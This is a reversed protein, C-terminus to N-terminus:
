SGNMAAEVENMEPFLRRIQEDSMGSAKLSNYEKVLKLRYDLEDQKGKWQMADITKKELEYKKKELDEMNKNHRVTEEHKLKTSDSAEKLMTVTEDDMLPDTRRKKKKNGKESAISSVAISNVESRGKSVGTENVRSLNQILENTGNDPPTANNNPPTPQQEVDDDEDLEGDTSSDLDRPNYNTAKPETSSRDAMIDCLEYYYPCKRKVIDQFTDNGQESQIGAGTESTAFTHAERFSEELQWIKEQVQKANRESSTENSMKTALKAAFHQKRVGNNDKGCYKSYNGQTTMWDLLIKMSTHSDDIGKQGDNNWKGRSSDGGSLAKVAAQYCAKTCAVTGGPLAEMSGNKAKLVIGQYCMVHVKKDCKTGGCTLKDAGKVKCGRVDCKLANLNSTTGNETGQMLSSM